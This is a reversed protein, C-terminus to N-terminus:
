DLILRARQFRALGAALLAADVVALVVGAVVLAATWNLDTLFAQVELASINPFLRPLLSVIGAPVWV